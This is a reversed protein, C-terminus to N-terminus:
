RGLTEALIEKMARANELMWHDNNLFVYVKRPSLGAIRVAIERLEEDSYDHAYWATRGHLRAYVSDNSAWYHIIEPSDVSVATAGVEKLVSLGEDSFWSPHRFEVALRPGLGTAQAFAKLREVGAATMAYSPPLQLLYYDILPEMPEFLARFKAWTSYSAQSLKRYHTISRHVKVAWRLGAGRRVWGRVQNRFPFRYFSANLEVANLGSNRVYWELGDPNWFYAWGSTGVFVEVM